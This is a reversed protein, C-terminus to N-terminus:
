KRRRLPVYQLGVPGTYRARPRILGPSGYQENVHAVWGAIRGVAVILPFMAPPIGVAWYLPALYLDAVPAQGTRRRVAEELRVAVQVFAEHGAAAVVNRAAERLPAVRLDDGQYVPHHFGPVQGQAALQGAVWADVRDPTGITELVALV